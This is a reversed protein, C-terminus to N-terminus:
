GSIDAKTLFVSMAFFWFTVDHPAAFLQKM